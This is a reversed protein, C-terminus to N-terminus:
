HSPLLLVLVAMALFLTGFIRNLTVQGAPTRTLRRLGKAATAFIGWMVIVDVVVITGMLISYQLLLDSAPNIFQPVFALFFLIAKPNTMNVAFGRLLMERAKAPPPAVDDDAPPHPRELLLRVGLWALYLVGAIRIALLVGPASAIVYGLGLATILLQLALAIEQGLITWIARGWGVKLSTSMTNVAGAGPTLAIAVCSALLALYVSAPM